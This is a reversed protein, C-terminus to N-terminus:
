NLGSSNPCRHFLPSQQLEPDDSVLFLLKKVKLSPYCCNFSEKEMATVNGKLEKLLWLNRHYPVCLNWFIFYM